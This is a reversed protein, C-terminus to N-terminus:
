GILFERLIESKPAVFVVNKNAVFKQIGLVSDFDEIKVGSSVFNGRGRVNWTRPCRFDEIKSHGAFM